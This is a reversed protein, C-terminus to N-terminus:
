SHKMHSRWADRRIWGFVAESNPEIVTHTWHRVKPHLLLITSTMAGAILLLAYWGNTIHEYVNMAAIIRIIIGHLLFVYLTRKGWDTFACIRQPVWALFVISGILEVGYIACRMLIAKWSSHMWGLEYFNMSNSLWAPELYPALIFIVAFLALSVGISVIRIIGNMRARIWELSFSYGIIFFPFYVLTKMFGFWTGQIPLFGALIGILCAWVFPHRVNLRAFLRMLLRWILHGVLFWLLLYPVFFSHKIGPVQFWIIDLLSYISQFLLYQLTIQKLIRNGSHGFLNNKAFYGTVGVFLPMQFTLLWLFLAKMEPMAQILPEIANGVFVSVILLFRLNLGFNEGSWPSGNPRNSHRICPLMDGSM